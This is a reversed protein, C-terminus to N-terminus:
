IQSQIILQFIPQLFSARIKPSFSNYKESFDFKTNCNNSNKMTKKTSVNQSKEFVVRGFQIYHDKGFRYTQDIGGQM